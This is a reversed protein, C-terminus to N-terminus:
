TRENNIKRKLNNILEIDEVTLNKIKEFESLYEKAADEKGYHLNTAILSALLSKLTQINNETKQAKAQLYGKNLLPLIKDRQGTLDLYKTTLLITEPNEGTLRILKKITAKAEKLRNGDLYTQAAKLYGEKSHERLGILYLTRAQNLLDNKAEYYKLEGRLTEIENPFYKKALALMKYADDLRSEETYYRGLSHIIASSRPFRKFGYELVNKAEEKQNNEVLLSAYFALEPIFAKNLKNKIYPTYFALIEDPNEQYVDYKITSILYATKILLSEYDLGYIKLTIPQNKFLKKKKKLEKLELTLLKLAEKAYKDMETKNIPLANNRLFDKIGIHKGYVALKHAKYLKNKQTNIASTYLKKLDSWELTRIFTRTGLTLALFSIFFIFVKSARASLFRLSALSIFFVLLLSPFYCYRDAMLCYTPAAIHLFPVSAFYFAYLLLFVISKSKDKSFLLIVLPILLFILYIALSFIAYPSTLTDSIFVLNSQYPSLTIPFFILKILHLFLQPTLWLNRELFVYPSSPFLTSFVADKNAMSFLLFLILGIFYSSSAKASYAIIGKWSYRKGNTQVKYYSLTLIIFFVILPLTFVQEVLLLVFFYAFALLIIRKKSILKAKPEKQNILSSIEFYIFLLCFTFSLIANWNTALLVAESNGSHVSWLLTFLSILIIRTRSQNFLHSIHSSSKELILWLLFTNILHISLQLFHYPIPNAKFLYLLFVILYWSLPDHRLTHHNSFFPNMSEIHCNKAFNQIIENLEGFSSAIPFLTEQFFLREDFPIWPRFLSFSYVLLTVFVVVLKEKTSKPM